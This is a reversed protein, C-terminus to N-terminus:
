VSPGHHQRYRGILIDIHGLESLASGKGRAAYYEGEWLLRENSEKFQGPKLDFMHGTVQLKDKM